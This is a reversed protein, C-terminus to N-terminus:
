LHSDSDSKKRNLYKERDAEEEKLLYKNRSPLLPACYEIKLIKCQLGECANCTECWSRTPYYDCCCCTIDIKRRLM